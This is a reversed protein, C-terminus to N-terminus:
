GFIDKKIRTFREPPECIFEKGQMYALPGDERCSAFRIRFAHLLQTTLDYERRVFANVTRNGYKSDGILPYGAKALQARIQHTRGTRITVEALTFPRGKQTRMIPEVYSEMLKGGDDKAGVTVINRQSDKTMSDSMRLPEKIHGSTITLYSKEIGNRGRLMASLERLAASNKGFIVLGTTNRDLRNVPAAGSQSITATM